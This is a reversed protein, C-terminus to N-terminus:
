KKKATVGIVIVGLVVVIAVAIAIIVVVVVVLCLVDTVSAAAAVGACVVACIPFVMCLAQCDSSEYGYVAVGGHCPLSAKGFSCLAVFGILLVLASLLSSYIM